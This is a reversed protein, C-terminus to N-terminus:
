NHGNTDLFGLIINEGWDGPAADIKAITGINEPCTLLDGPVRSMSIQGDYTIGMGELGWKGGFKEPTM